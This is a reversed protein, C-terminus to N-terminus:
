WGYGSMGEGKFSDKDELISNFFDLCARHRIAVLEPVSGHSHNQSNKDELFTHVLSSGFCYFCSAILVGFVSYGM